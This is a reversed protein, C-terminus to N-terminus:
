IYFMLRLFIIDFHLCIHLTCHEIHLTCLTCNVIYLMFHAIHVIHLTYNLFYLVYQTKCLNSSGQLIKFFNKCAHTTLTIWAFTNGPKTRYISRQILTFSILSHIFAANGCIQFFHFLPQNHVLQYATVMIKQIKFKIAKKVLFLITWHYNEIGRSFPFDWCDACSNACFSIRSLTHYLYFAFIRISQLGLPNMLLIPPCQCHFFDVCDPFLLASTAFLPFSILRVSCDFGAVIFVTCFEVWLRFVCNRWPGFTFKVALNREWEKGKKIKHCFNCFVLFARSSVLNSNRFQETHSPGPPHVIQSTM